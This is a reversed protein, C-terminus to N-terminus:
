LRQTRLLAVPRGDKLGDSGAVEMGEAPVRDPEALWLDALRWRSLRAPGRCGPAVAVTMGHVPRRRCAVQGGGPQRLAKRRGARNAACRNVRLGPLRRRGFLRLDRPAVPWSRACSGDSASWLRM